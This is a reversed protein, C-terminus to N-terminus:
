AVELPEGRVSERYRKLAGAVPTRKQVRRDLALFPLEARDARGLPGAHRQDLKQIPGADASARRLDHEATGVAAGGVACSALDSELAAEPEVVGAIPIDQESIGHITLRQRDLM